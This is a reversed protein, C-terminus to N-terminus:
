EDWDVDPYQGRVFEDLDDLSAFWLTKDLSDNTFWFEADDPFSGNVGVDISFDHTMIHYVKQFSRAESEFEEMTYDNYM